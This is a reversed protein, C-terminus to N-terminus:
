NYMVNVAALGCGLVARRQFSLAYLISGRYLGRLEYINWVLGTIHAVAVGCGTKLFGFFLQICGQTTLRWQTVLAM